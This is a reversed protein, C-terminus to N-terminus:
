PSHMVSICTVNVPGAPPPSYPAPLSDLTCPHMIVEFTEPPRADNDDKLADLLSAVPLTAAMPHRHSGQRLPSVSDGDPRPSQRCICAELTLLDLSCGQCLSLSMATFATCSLARPHLSDGAKSSVGFRTGHRTRPAAPLHVCSTKFLRSLLVLVHLLSFLM